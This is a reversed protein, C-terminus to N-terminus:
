WPTRVGIGVVLGVLAQLALMGRHERGVFACTAITLWPVFPLWIREVEGKSFGSLDAAAVAVLAGGVLLWAARHRLRTMAIVVAPGLAIAFAALNAWVFYAGPRQASIGAEYRGLTAELGEWWWFGAVSFAAAVVGVAVAGLLLPRMRRRHLAVAVVLAGLPVIGYSLFLACGLLTGGAVALVDGRAGSRSTAVVVCAIGWASLGLWLADASTAIWIAAPTLALYPAARRAADEGAVNRLAVLAAGASSAGAAIIVGAMGTVGIGARRLAWLVLVMGPPHGEVHVPYAALRATFTRLWEGVPEVLPVVRLYDARGLLPAGLADWGDVYALAVAWTGATAVTGIVVARWSPLRVIRAGFVVVGVALLAAPVVRPGLRLDFHGFLPPAFLKMRSTGISQAALYAAVIAVGWLLLIM